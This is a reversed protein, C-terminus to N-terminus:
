DFRIYCPRAKIVQGCSELENALMAVQRALAAVVIRHELTRRALAGSAVPEADIAHQGRGLRDAVDHAGIAALGAVRGHRPVGRYIEIVGFHEPATRTAVVAHLRLALTRTMDRCRQFAIGAMRGHAPGTRDEIVEADHGAARGTVVAHRRLAHRWRMDRNVRRRALGAMDRRLVRAEAARAHVVRDDRRGHGARVAVFCAQGEEAHRHHSAWRCWVRRALVATDAVQRGSREAVARQLWDAVNRGRLGARKAMRVRVVEAHVQHTVIADATAAGGTVGRSQTECIQRRRGQGLRRGIVDCEARSGAFAAM